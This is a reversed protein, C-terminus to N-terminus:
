RASTKILTEVKPDDVTVFAGNLDATASEALAVIARAVFEPSRLAGRKHAEVFRRYEDEPMRGQGQERIMVQMDTATMGPSVAVSVVEPFEAALMLTFHNLAAKSVCYASWGRIAKVSAGSSINIIRGRRARLSALAFQTLMAPAGLNVTLNEHWQDIDVSDFFGVPELVGANNILVDIGGFRKVASQAISKSVERDSVDGPVLARRDKPVDLSASFTELTEATRANLVLNFGRGAAERAIAAGIGRSAGTIIMTKSM